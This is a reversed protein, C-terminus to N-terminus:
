TRRCLEDVSAADATIPYAEVGVYDISQNRKKSKGFTIFCYPLRSFWNRFYFM